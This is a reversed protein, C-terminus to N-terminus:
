VPGNGLASFRARLITLVWTLGDRTVSVKKGEAFSRSVYNVPLELPIYGKRVLKIVLEIDFDFRNCIFDLGYLADRRFVKFMTFPDAMKARVAINIMTRFISHGLNFIAAAIPADSFNRIKWDGQHRSGLVFMSQRALLPALLGDYDDLDYELDADQIMLIDGTAAKLGERVANGKGRPAPQYIVRVDPHNEYARVLDRSGDTSNSEVVIIEKRVSSLQKALLADFLAQFTNRENFVPVVISVVTETSVAAASATVVASGSPLPFKSNRLLDPFIRGLFTLAGLWRSGEHALRLREILHDFSYKRRVTRFWIHEFGAGLLLLSLTERTFFWINPARWEHWNRGMLHAQRGDLLPLSLILPAEAPLLRRINKLTACPDLARMIADSVIAAGFKRGATIKGFGEADFVRTCAVARRGLLRIIEDDTDSLVIVPGTISFQELAAILSAHDKETREPGARDALNETTAHSSQEFLRNSFTLTCGTCRLVRFNRAKFMYSASTTGCIPCSFDIQAATHSSLRFTKSMADKRM